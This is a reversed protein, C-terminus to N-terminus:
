VGEAEAYKKWDTEAVVTLDYFEYRFDFVGGLDRALKNIYEVINEICFLKTYDVISAALM